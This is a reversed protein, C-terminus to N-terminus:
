VLRRCDTDWYHSLSKTEKGKNETLDFPCGKVTWYVASSFGHYEAKDFNAGPLRASPVFTDFLLTM